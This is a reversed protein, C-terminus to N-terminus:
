WSHIYVLYIMMIGTDALIHSVVPAALSGSKHKFLGWVLGAIFVPIVALVNFPWNFLEVMSLIHYFSYFFSSTIIAMAPSMSVKLEEFIFNRWYNEELYPNLIILVAILGWVMKGNFNWEELLLGIIELEIISSFLFSVSAFIILLFALGSATGLLVSNRTIRIKWESHNQNTLSFYVPVLLLWGYFLGFTLPVNGYITLGIFIMLTPGILLVLKKM